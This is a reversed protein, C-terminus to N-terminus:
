RIELARREYSSTEKRLTKKIQDEQKQGENKLEAVQQQIKEIAELM